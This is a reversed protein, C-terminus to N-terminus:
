PLDWFWAYDTKVMHYQSSSKWTDLLLQRAGHMANWRREDWLVYGWQRFEDPVYDGYLNCYKGDWMFVWAVPPGCTICINVPRENDPDFLAPNVTYALTSLATSEEDGAFPMPARMREVLDNYCIGYVALYRRQNQVHDEMCDQFFCPLLARTFYKRVLELLRDHDETETMHLALRLGGRGITGHLYEDDDRDLTLSGDPEFGFGVEGEFKPNSPDFDWKVKDVVNDFMQKIWQYVCNMEEVEWGDFQCFFIQQAEESTFSQYQKDSFLNCFIQFRYLARLIRRRETSSVGDPWVSLVPAQSEGSTNEPKLKAVASQLKTLTFNSLRGALPRVTSTHNWTIWRIDALSMCELMTIPSRTHRWWGYLDIFDTVNSNPRARPGIRSSKSNFAAIADILVERGLDAELCRSLLVKRDLRYQAFYVPSAHILSGLSTLDPMNSLVRLRLEAPLTELSSPAPQQGSDLQSQAMRDMAWEASEDQNDPADSM